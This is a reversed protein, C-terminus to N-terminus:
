QRSANVFENQTRITYPVTLTENPDLMTFAGSMQTTASITSSWNVIRLPDLDPDERFSAELALVGAERVMGTVPITYPRRIDLTGSVQTGDQSLTLTFPYSVRTASSIGFMMRPCSRPDYHGTCSTIQYTGSWTGSFIPPGPQPSPAAPASSNCASLGLALLLLAARM